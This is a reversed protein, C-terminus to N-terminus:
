SSGVSSTLWYAGYVRVTLPTVWGPPEAEYGVGGPDGLGGPLAPRASGAVGGTRAWRMGQPAGIM